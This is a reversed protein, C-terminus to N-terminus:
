PDYFQLALAAVGDDQPVARVAVKKGLKAATGHAHASFSRPSVDFDEGQRLLWVKGNAWTEWDYKYGGHKRFTRPLKDIERAVNTDQSSLYVAARPCLWAEGLSPGSLGTVSRM